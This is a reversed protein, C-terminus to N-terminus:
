RFDELLRQNTVMVGQPTKLSFELSFLHTKM